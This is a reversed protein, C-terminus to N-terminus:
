KINSNVKEGEFESTYSKNKSHNMGVQVVKFSWYANLVVITSM